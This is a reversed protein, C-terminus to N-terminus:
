PAGGMAAQTRAVQEDWGELDALIQRAIRGAQDATLFIDARVNGEQGTPGAAFHLEFRDAYPNAQVLFATRVGTDPLVSAPEPAAAVADPATTAAATAGLFTRRPLTDTM